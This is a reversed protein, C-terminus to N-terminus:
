AAKTLVRPLERKKAYRLGVEILTEGMQIPREDAALM